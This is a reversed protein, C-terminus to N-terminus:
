QLDPPRPSVRQWGQPCRKVYPYYGQPMPCYYWWYDPTEDLDDRGNSQEIYVPPPAQVTVVPPYAYYTPSHYYVPPGLPIGVVVGVHARSHGHWHHSHQHAWAADAALLALLLFLIITPAARKM